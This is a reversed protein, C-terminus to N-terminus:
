RGSRFVQLIQRLERPLRVGSPALEGDALADIFGGTSAPDRAALLGGTSVDSGQAWWRRKAAAAGGPGAALPVPEDADPRRLVLIASSVFREGGKDSPRNIVKGRIVMTSSGGGDLNLAWSAGLREFERAFEILTMGVSHRRRRGDVTVLLLRGDATSGIGTRPHRGCIAAACKKAVVSGDRMLLPFGGVSDLIGPWGFSWSLTVTEGATLSRIM